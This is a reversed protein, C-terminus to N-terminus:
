KRFSVGNKCWQYAMLGNVGLNEDPV